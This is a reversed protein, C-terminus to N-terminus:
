SRGAAERFLPSEMLNRGNPNFSWGVDKEVLWNCLLNGAAHFSKVTRLIGIRENLGQYIVVVGVEHNQIAVIPYQLACLHRVTADNNQRTIRELVIQPFMLWDISGAKPVSSASLVLVQNSPLHFSNFLMKPIFQKM